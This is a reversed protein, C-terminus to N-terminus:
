SVSKVGEFAAQAEHCNDRALIYERSLNQLDPDHVIDKESKGKMARQLAKHSANRAVISQKVRDSAKQIMSPSFLSSGSGISKQMDCM